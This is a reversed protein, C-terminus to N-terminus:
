AVRQKPEEIRLPRIRNLESGDARETLHAVGRCGGAEDRCLAPLGVRRTHSVRHERREKGLVAEHRDQEVRDGAM